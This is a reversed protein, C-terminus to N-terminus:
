KFELCWIGYPGTVDGAKRQTFYLRSKGNPAASPVLALSGQKIGPPSFSPDSHALPPPKDLEELHAGVHEVVHARGGHARDQYAIIYRGDADRIASLSGTDQDLLPASADCVTATMQAEVGVIPLQVSLTAAFVVQGAVFAIFATLILLRKM